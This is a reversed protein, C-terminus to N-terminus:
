RTHQPPQSLFKGIVLIQMFFEVADMVDDVSEFTKGVRRVVLVNGDGLSLQPEEPMGYTCRFNKLKVERSWLLVKEVMRSDNAAPNTPDFENLVRDIERTSEPM